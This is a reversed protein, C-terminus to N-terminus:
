NAHHAYLQAVGAACFAEFSRYMSGGEKAYKRWCAKIKNDYTRREANNLATIFEGECKKIVSEGLAVDGSSGYECLRFIAMAQDCAAAEALSGQINELDHSPCEESHALSPAILWTTALSALAICKLM